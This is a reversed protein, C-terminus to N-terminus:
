VSCGFAWNVESRKTWAPHMRRRRRIANDSGSDRHLREKWKYVKAAERTDPHFWKM